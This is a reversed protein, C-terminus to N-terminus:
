TVLAAMGDRLPRPLVSYLDRVFDLTAGSAAAMATAVFVVVFPAAAMPATTLVLQLM